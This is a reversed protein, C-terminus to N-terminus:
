HGGGLPGFDLTNHELNLISRREGVTENFTHDFSFQLGLYVKHERDRGLEAALAREYDSYRYQALFEVGSGLRHVYSPAIVTAGADGYDAYDRYGVTLAAQWRTQLAPRHGYRLALVASRASARARAAHSALGAGKVGDQAIFQADLNWTAEPDANLNLALAGILADVRERGLGAGLNQAKQTDYRIGAYRIGRDVKAAEPLEYAFGLYGGNFDSTSTRDGAATTETRATIGGDLSVTRTFWWNGGVIGGFQQYEEAQSNSSANPVFAYDLLDDDRLTPFQILTNGLRSRGLKIEFRPGGVGAHLEHFYVDDKLETDDEPVKFGIVGFGYRTSDFLYKSFGFLLSSDAIDLESNSSSGGGVLDDRHYKTTAIARGGLNIEPTVEPDIELAHAPAALALVLISAM